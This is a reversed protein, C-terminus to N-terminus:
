TVTFGHHAIELEEIAISNDDTKFTPGTWRTPYANRLNWSNYLVHENGYLNITVQRTAGAIDGQLVLMYWNLLDFSRSVGNKLQITGVKVRGPLRHVFTNQGGEKIEVTEVELSPLRVETFQATSLGDIVVEFRYVPFFNPDSM